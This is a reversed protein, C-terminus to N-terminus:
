SYEWDIVDTAGDSRVLTQPDEEITWALSNCRRHARLWGCHRFLSLPGALTRGATLNQDSSPASPSQPSQRNPASRRPLRKAEGSGSPQRSLVAVSLPYYREHKRDGEPWAWKGFNVPWHLSHPHNAAFGCFATNEKRKSSVKDSPSPRGASRYKPLSRD